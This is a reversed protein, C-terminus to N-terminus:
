TTAWFQYLADEPSCIATLEGTVPVYYIEIGQYILPHESTYKKIFDPYEELTLGKGTMIESHPFGVYRFHWPEHEIGTINEKGAPYREVLGYSPATERFIECVGDYPFDPCIFDIHDSYLGLDIAM